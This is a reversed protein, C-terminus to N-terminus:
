LEVYASKGRAVRQKLDRIATSTNRKQAVQLARAVMETVNLSPFYRSRDTAVYEDGQLQYMRLGPHRLLWVEPMRYPLYHNVDTYSTVDVELVLDPPPDTAWDIRDKGSIARWREIYFCSDPEIGSVEPLQMTIPTFSDYEQGTRDCLVKVIDAILSAERGHKPLPSMLWVEGALYKIRPIASDGRQQCLHRYEQWSAPLRVVAGPPLQITDPSVVAFM